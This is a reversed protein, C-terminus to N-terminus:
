ALVPFANVDPIFTLLNLGQIRLYFDVTGFIYFVNLIEAVSESTRVVKCSM